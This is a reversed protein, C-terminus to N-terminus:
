GLGVFMFGTSANVEVTPQSLVPTACLSESLAPSLLKLRTWSQAVGHVAAQWTGRDTSNELCYYQLPNGNGGGPFRRLGPILGSDGIVKANCASEQGYSGSPFGRLRLVVSPLLGHLNSQGEESATWKSLRGQEYLLGESDMRSGCGLAGTTVKFLIDRSGVMAADSQALASCKIWSPWDSGRQWVDSVPVLFYYRKLHSFGFGTLMGAQTNQFVTLDRVHSGEFQSSEFIHVLMGDTDLRLSVAAQAGDGIASSGGVRGSKGGKGGGTLFEEQSNM